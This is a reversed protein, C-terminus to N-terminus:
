CCLKGSINQNKASQVENIKLFTKYATEPMNKTTHNSYLERKSCTTSFDSPLQSVLEPEYLFHGNFSITIMTFNCKVHM